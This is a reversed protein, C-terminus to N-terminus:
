KRGFLVYRMSAETDVIGPCVVNVRVPALDVALGRVLADVAGLVSTQLSWGKRPRAIASGLSTEAVSTRILKCQSM